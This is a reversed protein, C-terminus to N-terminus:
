SKVFTFQDVDFLNGSGTFTLFINATGSPVGTLSTTVTTYTDWSGTVPVAVSGLIPGTQSGTRVQLTGGNGASSVRAQLSLAGGVNINNYGAWDGNAIFGLRQGGIASAANVIQVGSQSTFAEGQVTVNTGPPPTSSPPTSGSSFSFTGAGVAYVDYLGSRRLFAAGATLASSSTTATALPVWVEGSTGSPSTVQMHFQGTTDQAWRVILSGSATPVQGQAWALDGRHPKVQWTSYGPNVPNAGLVSETLVQTPGAGWAHALSDFGRTPLGQSNVFEWFTGTYFAGATDVQLGWLRRMLELAGATDDAQMRAMVEWTNNLPEITHGGPDAM